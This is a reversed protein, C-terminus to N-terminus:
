TFEYSFQVFKTRIEHSNVYIYVFKVTTCGRMQGVVRTVGRGLAARCAGQGCGRGNRAVSSRRQLTQLHQMDTLIRRRRGSAYRQVSMPGQGIQARKTADWGHLWLRDDITHKDVVAQVGLRGPLLSPGGSNRLMRKLTRHSGEMAFCCFESLIRWKKAFFICTTSGFFRGCFNAGSSSM